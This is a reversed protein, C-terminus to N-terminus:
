YSILILSSKHNFSILSFLLPISLSFQPHIPSHVFPCISSHVISSPSALSLRLKSTPHHVPHLISLPRLSSRMSYSLLISPSDLFSPSHLSSTSYITHFSLLPLLSRPHLFSPSLISLPLFSPTQRTISPTPPHHRITKSPTCHSHLSSTTFISPSHLCSLHPFSSIPFISPPYISSSSLIFHPNLFSSPLLSTSHYHFSTLPFM